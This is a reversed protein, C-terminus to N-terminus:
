MNKKYPETVSFSAEQIRCTDIEFSELCGEVGFSKLEQLITEAAKKEGETGTERIYDFKKMFDMQRQGSIEYLDM